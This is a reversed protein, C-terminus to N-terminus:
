EMVKLLNVMSDCLTSISEHILRLSEDLRKINIKMVEM